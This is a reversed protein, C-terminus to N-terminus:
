ASSGASAMDELHRDIEIEIADLEDILDRVGSVPPEEGDRGLQQQFGLVLRKLRPLSAYCTVGHLKHAIAALRDRQDQALADDLQQRYEPIDRHIIEFIQRLLSENDACLALSSDYDVSADGNGTHGATRDSAASRREPHSDLLERFDTEDIPKSLFYDFGLDLLRGAEDNLVNATLAVIPVPNDPQQERMMGLLSIGDIDPMQIDLIILDFSERAFIELAESGHEAEVVQHGWLRILESALTLNVRNDDVLLVRKCDRAGRDAAAPRSDGSAPKRALLNAVTRSTSVVSAFELSRLSPEADFGRDYDMVIIRLNSVVEPELLRELDLELHRQDFVLLDVLARNHRITDVVPDVGARNDVFVSEVISGAREFLSRTEMLCTKDAAFVLAKPQDTEDDTNKADSAALKFPLRLEFRSGEGARSQMAIDGGMLTALNKSIVLGLGTGTFRRTDSSEVQNFAQFLHQQDEESIGIGTDEVAIEIEAANANQEVLCVRVVVRGRETFKIANGILNLLIQKLRLKDGIVRRPTDSFIILNLDISKTLV